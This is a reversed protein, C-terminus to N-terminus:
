CRGDQLRSGPRLVAEPRVCHGDMKLQRISVWEDGSAVLAGSENCQRVTGPASDCPLRTLVAKLIEIEREEWRVKPHGWPSRYPSYDCARVFNVIESASREWSLCGGHPISRGFYHRHSLEQRVRPIAEPNISASELVKLLLPVGHRVCKHTVSVPTDNEEIPFASRYAIDGADIQPVMWHVTVGYTTEGNYIAWNVTNLGAYHPLPGPHMNFAGVRVAHLVEERIIYLSHVNLLIDIKQSSVSRAFDPDKVLRAPWTEYGLNEALSTLSINGPTTSPASSMVAVVENGSCRVAKLVQVGASEECILLIRLKPCGSM